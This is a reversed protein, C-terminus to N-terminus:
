EPTPGFVGGCRSQVGPAEREGERALVQAGAVVNDDALVEGTWSEDIVERRQRLPVTCLEDLEDQLDVLWGQSLAEPHTQASRIARLM